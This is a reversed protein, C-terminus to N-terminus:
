VANWLIPIGDYKKSVLKNIYVLSVECTVITLPLFASFQFYLANLITPLRGTAQEKCRLSSVTNQRLSVHLKLYVFVNWQNRTCISKYRITVEQCCFSIWYYWQGRKCIYWYERTPLSMCFSKMGHQLRILLTQMNAINKAAAKAGHDCQERTVSILALIRLFSLDCRLQLTEEHWERLISCDSCVRDLLCFSTEQLRTRQGIYARFLYYVEKIMKSEARCCDVGIMKYKFCCNDAKSVTIVSSLRIFRWIVYLGM